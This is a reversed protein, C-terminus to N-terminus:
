RRRPQADLVAILVPLTFISVIFLVLLTIAIRQRRKRKAAAAATRSEVDNWDAAAEAATAQKTLLCELGTVMAHLLDEHLTMHRAAGEFHFLGSKGWAQSPLIEMALTVRGRDFVIVAQQPLEAVSKAENPKQKGRQMKLELAAPPRNTPQEFSSWDPADRGLQRFGHQSLFMRVLEMAAAGDITTVFEHEIVM